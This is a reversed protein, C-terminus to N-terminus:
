FDARSQKEQSHWELWLVPKHRLFFFFPISFSPLSQLFRFCILCLLPESFFLWKSAEYCYSEKYPLKYSLVFAPLLLRLAQKMLQRLVVCTALDPGPMARGSSHFAQVKLLLTHPAPSALQRWRLFTKKLNLLFHIYKNILKYKYFLCRAINAVTLCHQWVKKNKQIAPGLRM